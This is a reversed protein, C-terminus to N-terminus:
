FHGHIIVCSFILKYFRTCKIYLSCIFFHSTFRNYSGSISTIEYERKVSTNGRLFHYWYTSHFPMSVPRVLVSPFTPFLWWYSLLHQQWFELWIIPTGQHHWCHIFINNSSRNYACEFNFYILSRNPKSIYIVLHM